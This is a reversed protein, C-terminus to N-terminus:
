LDTEVPFDMFYGAKKAVDKITVAKIEMFLRRIEM